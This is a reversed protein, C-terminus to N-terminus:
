VLNSLEKLLIVVYNQQLSSVNSVNSLDYLSPLKTEYLDKGKNCCEKKFFELSNVKNLRMKVLIDNFTYFNLIKFHYKGGNNKGIYYYLM